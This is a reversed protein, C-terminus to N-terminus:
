APFPAEPSLPSPAHRTIISSSTLCPLLSPDGVGQKKYTNCRRSKSIACTRQRCCMRPPGSTNCRFSKSQVLITCFTGMEAQPFPGECRWTRCAFPARLYQLLSDLPLFVSPRIPSLGKRCPRFRGSSIPVPRDVRSAQEPHADKISARSAARPEISTAPTWSMCSYLAALV